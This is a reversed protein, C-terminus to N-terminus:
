KSIFDIKSSTLNAGISFISIDEPLLGDLVVELRVVLKDLERCQCYLDPGSHRCSAGFNNRVQQSVNGVPLPRYIKEM